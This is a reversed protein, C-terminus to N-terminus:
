RLHIEGTEHLAIIRDLEQDLSESQYHNRQNRIYRITREM